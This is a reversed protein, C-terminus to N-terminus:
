ETMTNMIICESEDCKNLDKHHVCPKNKLFKLYIPYSLREKLSIRLLPSKSFNIFEDRKRDQM